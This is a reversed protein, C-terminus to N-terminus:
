EDEKYKRKTRSICLDKFVDSLNFAFQGKLWQNEDTEHILHNAPWQGFALDTNTVANNKFQQLKWLRFLSPWCNKSSM